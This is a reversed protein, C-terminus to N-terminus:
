ERVRKAADVSYLAAGFVLAVVIWDGIGGKDFAIWVRLFGFAMAALAALYWLNARM